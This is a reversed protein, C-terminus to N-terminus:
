RTSMYDGGSYPSSAESRALRVMWLVEVCANVGSPRALSVPLQCRSLSELAIARERWSGDRAPAPDEAVTKYPRVPLPSCRPSAADRLDSLGPEPLVKMSHACCGPLLMTVHGDEGSASTGAVRTSRRAHRLGCAAAPGRLRRSWRNSSVAIRKSAKRKLLWHRICREVGSQDGRRRLRGARAAVRGHQRTRRALLARARRPAPEPRPQLLRCYALARGRRGAGICFGATASRRNAVAAWAVRKYRRQYAEGVREPDPSIKIPATFAYALQAPADQRQLLKLCTPMPSRIGAAIRQWMPRPIICRCASPGAGRGVCAQNGPSGVRQDATTESRDLSPDCEVLRHRRCAGALGLCGRRCSEPPMGM